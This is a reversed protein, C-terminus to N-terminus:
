SIVMNMATMDRCMETNTNSMEAIASHLIKRQGEGIEVRKEGIEGVTREQKAVEIKTRSEKLGVKRAVPTKM